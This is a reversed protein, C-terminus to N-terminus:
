IVSDSVTFVKGKPLFPLKKGKPILFAHERRIILNDCEADTIILIPAKKPFDKANELFRIAPQLITGGRGKVKVREALEEPKVFGEDYYTADCFVLRVYPVEKSISYSIITGLAKALLKKDMSGSTDLIVGYTHSELLESPLHWGPRPIDPTSSQRRSLRSYTRRKEPPIIHEDFWRALEVDWAIPPQSISNIEEILGAPLYGRSFNRHYELSQSLTRRYFEDLLVGEQTNWWVPKSRELIDCSELGALTRLKRFRRLDKVIKDYLEEASMGKLEPDHLIGVEPPDGIGMELLWGNIVYDCAVNWFYSDRGQRRVEHRLGVHLIEHAIVFRLEEDNLNSSPNIYIEKLESDVAAVQIGDRSCVNRDEVIDFVSAFAGLLPYNSIFWEKTLAAKTKKNQRPDIGGAVDVSDVVAQSLASTMTKQWLDLNKGHKTEDEETWYMDLGSGSTSYQYFKPDIGYELFHQYFKEENGFTFETNSSIELPPNGVKLEKLFKTIIADCAINWPLLSNKKEFHGFGLHLLCHCLVYMWEEPEGRRTPHYFIEGKSTVVAWGTKPCYKFNTDKYISAERKLYGFLPHLGLLQLGSNFKEEAINIQSKKSKPKM